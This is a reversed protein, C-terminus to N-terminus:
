LEIRLADEGEPQFKLFKDSSRFYYWYADRGPLIKLPRLNVGTNVYTRLKSLQDYITPTIVGDNSETVTIPSQIAGKSIWTAVEGNFFWRNGYKDCVEAGDDPFRPLRPLNCTIAM